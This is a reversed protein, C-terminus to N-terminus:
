EFNDFHDGLRILQTEIQVEEMWILLRVQKNNLWKGIDINFSSLPTQQAKFIKIVVHENHYYTPFYDVYMSKLKFVRCLM